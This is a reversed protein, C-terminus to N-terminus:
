LRELGEFGGNFDDADDVWDGDWDFDSDSFLPARFDSSTNQETLWGENDLIADLQDYTMSSPIEYGMDKLRSLVQKVQEASSKVRDVKHEHEVVERDTAFAGGRDEQTRTRAEKFYESATTLDSLAEATDPSSLSERVRKTNRLTVQGHSNIRTAGEGLVLDLKAQMQELQRADKGFTDGISKLAHNITKVTSNPNSPNIRIAM